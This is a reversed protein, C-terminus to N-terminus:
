LGRPVSGHVQPSITHSEPSSAPNQRTKRRPRPSLPAPCGLPAGTRSLLAQLHCRAKALRLLFADPCMLASFRPGAASRQGRGRGDGGAGQEGDGGVGAGM